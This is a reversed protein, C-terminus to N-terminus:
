RVLSEKILQDEWKKEGKIQRELDVRRTGCLDEILGLPELERHCM